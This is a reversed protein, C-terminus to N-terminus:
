DTEISWHLQGQEPAVSWNHPPSVVILTNRKLAVAGVVEADAAVMGLVVATIDEACLVETTTTIPVEVTILVTAWAGEDDLRAPDPDGDELETAETADANEADETDAPVFTAKLLVVVGTEAKPPAM